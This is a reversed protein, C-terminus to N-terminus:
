RPSARPPRPRAAVIEGLAVLAAQIEPQDLYEAGITGDPWREVRDYEWSLFMTCEPVAALVAGYETIEEASMPWFGAGRWGPRGARGDGGDAVNLGNIISLGLGLARRRETEAYSRVEGDRAQYQNVCADLHQYRGSAPTPLHTAQARVFTMLGPLREQSYRALEDLEAATPDQGPFTLIDDLLMHGVLTGDDVFAQIGSDTWPEMRAKWARLDFDGQADTYGPHDGALRLTVKVGAERAAPLLRGVAWAPDESAVQFVTMGLRAKVEALGEVSHHGNLGWFGYLMGQGPAAPPEPPPAPLPPPTPAPTACALLLAVASLLPM